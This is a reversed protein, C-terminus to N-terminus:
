PDKPKKPPIPPLGLIKRTYPNGIRNAPVDLLDDAQLPRGLRYEMCSICLLGKGVGYVAWLDNRIM